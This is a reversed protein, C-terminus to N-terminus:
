PLWQSKQSQVTCVVIDAQESAPGVRSVAALSGVGKHGLAMRVIGTWGWGGIGGDVGCM